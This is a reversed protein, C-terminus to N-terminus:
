PILHDPLLSRIYNTITDRVIEGESNNCSYILDPINRSEIVNRKAVEMQDLVLNEDIYVRGRECLQTARFM